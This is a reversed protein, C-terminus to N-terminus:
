ESPVVLLTAGGVETPSWLVVGLCVPIAPDGQQNVLKVSSLVVNVTARGGEDALTQGLPQSIRNTGPAFVRVELASRPRYGVATITLTDGDKVQGPSISQIQRPLDLTRVIDNAQFCQARTDIVGVGGLTPAPPAATSPT